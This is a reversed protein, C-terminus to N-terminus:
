LESLLCFVIALLLVGSVWESSRWMILGGFGFRGMRGDLRAERATGRNGLRLLLSLSSMGQNSTLVSFVAM